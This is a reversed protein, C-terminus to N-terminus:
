EREITLELFHCSCSICPDYNRITQECLWKLDEDAMDLNKEVVGRLDREIQPQNQSTPPMILAKAIRGDEGLEYRHFCIGRPAETCGCGTGARVAVPASPAALGRYGEIIRRVEELAHITEVMRVLLSKFPNTVIPGLGARRAADRARTSLRDFNNNYRAIPGVLYPGSGDKPRAHLSTSHAVQFEEYRDMFGDLPIAEGGSVVIDGEMIPYATTNGLSVCTYDYDYDPFDFGSFADLLTEAAGLGWEVEPLLVRLAEISPAKYFGGVKTNVPHVARGGITAMLDNGLKKLRLAAKVLDPNAAAIQLADQLGLFDPAHLMAAHLVHSQIWEGCYILRRMEHIDRPVDVGLAAEMAHSAGMIYAVPCIGCIRATIDPADSYMRGRLLGEFFRPPEYIRFKLDRIENNRVRVYLAGEGEVRALADVKIVRAPGGGRTVDSLSM